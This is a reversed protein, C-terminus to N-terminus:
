WSPHKNTLLCMFIQFFNPESYRQIEQGNWINFITAPPSLCYNYRKILTFVFFYIILVFFAISIFIKKNNNGPKLFIKVLRYIIFIFIIALILILLCSIFDSLFILGYFFQIKEENDSSCIEEQFVFPFGSLKCLKYNKYYISESDFNLRIGSSWFYGLLTLALSTIFFLLIRKEKFFNLNM